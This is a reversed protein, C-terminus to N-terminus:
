SNITIIEGFNIGVCPCLNETTDFYMWKILLIFYYM